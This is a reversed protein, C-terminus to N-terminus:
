RDGALALDYDDVDLVIGSHESVESTLDGISAHVEVEYVDGCTISDNESGGVQM